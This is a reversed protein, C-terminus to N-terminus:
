KFIGTIGEGIDKLSKGVEEIGGTGLVVISEGIRKVSLGLKGALGITMKEIFNERLNFKPNDLDGELIFDVVIQNNNDKLFKIVAYLPVGIFKNKAGHGADFELDKLIARGPANIKRSIIKLSMDLDLIGRTVNVDGKREFYPKFGTIDLGRLEVKCETDMTKLRVKGGSKLTGTSQKGPIKANVAYSSLIDNLPFGFIKSEFEINRIKTMVYTRSVQGDLYDVSGNTIKTEEIVVPPTPREKGKGKSKNLFPNVLNGKRDKHLLIYPNELFLDSVVYEKRLLGMFDARVVLNDTKFIDKGDPDKFSIDVAEVKGWSLKIERFSFGQGLVSELKYKIVRNANKILIAVTIGLLLVITLFSILVIKIKKSM